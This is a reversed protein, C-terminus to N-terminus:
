FLLYRSGCPRNTSHRDPKVRLAVRSADYALRGFEDTVLGTSGARLSGFGGFGDAILKASATDLYLASHVPVV